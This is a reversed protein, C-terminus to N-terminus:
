YQDYNVAVSATAAASNNFCLTQGSASTKLGEFYPNSSIKGANVVGYWPQDVQTPTSCSTSASTELYVNTTGNFSVSYDCVYINKGSVGAVLSTDTATAATAYAHSGCLHPQVSANGVNFSIPQPNSSPLLAVGLTTPLPTVFPTLTAGALQTSVRLRVAMGQPHILIQTQTAPTSVPLTFPMAILAGNASTPDVVQYPNIASWATGDGSVQLTVGGATLGGSVDLQLLYAAAYDGSAIINQTTGVTTGSVWATGPITQGTFYVSGIAAAGGPISGGTNSNISNLISYLPGTTLVDFLRVGNAMSQCPAIQGNTFTPLTSNYACGEQVAEKPALSGAPASFTAGSLHITDPNNTENATVAIPGGSGLSSAPIRFRVYTLLTTRIQANEVPGTHASVLNLYASGAGPVLLSCSYWQATFAAVEAASDGTCESNVTTTSFTGTTTFSASTWGSVPFVVASGTTPTGTVYAQGQENTGTSSGTDAVTLTNAGAVTTSDASVAAGVPMPTTPGIAILHNPSGNGDSIGLAIGQTPLNFGFTGVGAKGNLDLVGGVGTNAVIAALNGGSELAYNTEGGGGSGGGGGGTGTPLGTGAVGQATTAGAPAICRLAAPPSAPIVFPFWGGNPTIEQDSITAAVGWVNCYMPNTAGSNTVVLTAGATAASPWNSSSTDATGVSFQTLRGAAASPAPTFGAETLGVVGGTMQMPAAGLNLEIAQLYTDATVQNGATAAGGLTGLNVTQVTAFSPLNGSLGVTWAGSQTVASSVGSGGYSPSSFVVSAAGAVTEAVYVNSSSDAPEIVVPAATQSVVHGAAGPSPLSDAVIVSVPPGFVQMQVPAPGLSTYTTSSVNTQTTGAAHAAPAALAIALATASFLSRNM